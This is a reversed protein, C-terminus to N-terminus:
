SLQKSIRTRERVDGYLFSRGSDIYTYENRGSGIYIYIYIHFMDTGDIEQKWDLVIPIVDILLLVDSSVEAHQQLGNEQIRKKKEEKFTKLIIKVKLINCEFHSIIFNLITNM